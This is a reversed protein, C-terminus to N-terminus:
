PKPGSILTSIPEHLESECTEPHMLARALLVTLACQGWAFAKGSSCSCRDSSTTTLLLLDGQRKNTHPLLVERQSSYVGHYCRGIPAPSASLLYFCECTDSKVITLFDHM